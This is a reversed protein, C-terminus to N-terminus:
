PTVILAIGSVHVVGKGSATIVLVYTGPDTGSPVSVTLTSSGSSGIITPPVFSATSSGPLGDVSLTVDGAGGNIPTAAVNFIATGGAASSVTQGSVVSVNGTFDGTGTSVGLDVLTSHILPGSTADVSVQYISPQPTSLSTQLTLTSSGSGGNIVPPVFNATVGSPLGSINLTVNSTFGGTPTISVTYAVSGGPSTNMAPQLVNGIFDGVIPAVTITVSTSHTLSGSNGSLTITYTGLPITNSATLTVISKGNGGHVLVPNYSPTLGNPLDTASLVVDGTWGYLPEITLPISLKGGQLMTSNFPAVIGKFDPLPAIQLELGLSQQVKTGSVYLTEDVIDPRGDGNVDLALMFSPVSSSGQSTPFSGDNRGFYIFGGTALDLNGDGDFDALLLPTTVQSVNPVPTSASFTGDGNGLSILLYGQNLQGVSQLATAIDLKGDRNFDGVVATLAGVFSTGSGAAPNIAQFSGDGNGLLVGAFNFGTPSTPDYATVVLDPIGDGNFDGIAVTDRGVYPALSTSPGIVFTGNSQGLLVQVGSATAYALDINGDRNFDGLVATAPIVGAFDTEVQIPFTGSGNGVMVNVFSTQTGKTGTAILDLKGDQNIDLTHLGTINGGSPGATGLPAQFTGDNNGRIVYVSSGSAVAIDAKGDNDFDGGVPPSTLTVKGTISKPTFSPAVVAYTVDLAETNSYGGGPGPNWVSVTVTQVANIDSASIAATLKSGNVFTTARTGGNWDVVSGAVFGSGTVTLTFAPGGPVIAGPVIPDLSPVPNNPLPGALALSPLVVAFFVLFKGFKRIQSGFSM